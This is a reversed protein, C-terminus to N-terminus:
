GILRRIKNFIFEKFSLNKLRDIEAQAAELDLCVDELMKSTESLKKVTTEQFEKTDEVHRNIAEILKDETKLTRDFVETDDEWDWKTEDGYSHYWITSPLSQIYAMILDRLTRKM